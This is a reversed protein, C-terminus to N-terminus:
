RTGVVIVRDQLGRATRTQEFSGSKLNDIMKSCSVGCLAFLLWAAM